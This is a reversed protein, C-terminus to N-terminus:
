LERGREVVLRNSSDTEDEDEDNKVITNRRETELNDQGAEERREAVRVGTPVELNWRKPPTNPPTRVSVAVAGCCPLTIRDSGGALGFMTGKTRVM